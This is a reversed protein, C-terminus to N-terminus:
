PRGDDALKTEIDDIVGPLDAFSEVVYHAGEGEFATTAADLREELDEPELKTVENERLGLMNGTRTVGVTWCGANLGADIDPITDGIKIVYGAPYVNFTEMARYIMWPAPRGFPVDETCFAADPTFGAKKADRLVMNMMQRDYGTSTAIKIGRKKLDKATDVVGPILDGYEPLTELHLPVFESYLADIDAQDHKKGHIDKWADKVDPLELLAALHDRKHLGMPGRAQAFTIQIGHRAMLSVFVGAPACSGHDIITGSLDSVLCRIAHPSRKAM